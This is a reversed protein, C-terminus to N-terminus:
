GLRRSRLFAFAREDRDNDQPNSHQTDGVTRYGILEWGARDIVRKLGADTFIWFNTADNNAEDPALLYAAPFASVDQENAQFHRAIRTSLFMFRSVSSLKELVFLPNKLHYLIGFFFLVDYQHKIDFQSDLDCQVINVRSDLAAKLANAGRLGNMNTPANDYIDCDNGLFELYYALEGDAAGIDAYKKSPTFLFDFEETVIPDIHWFNAMTDYPYWPFEVRLSKKVNKLREAFSPASNKVDDFVSRVKKNEM